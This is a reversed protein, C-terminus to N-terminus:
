IREAGPTSGEYNASYDTAPSTPAEGEAAAAAEARRLESVTAEGAARRTLSEEAAASGEAHMAMNDQEMVAAFKAADILGKFKTKAKLM